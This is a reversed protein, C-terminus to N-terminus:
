NESIIDDKLYPLHLYDLRGAMVNTSVRFIKSLDSLSPVILDNYIKYLSEKPILLEGAFVNADYERPENKNDNNRLEVHRNKLTETHLCCHAIEHAITFRKRNVTDSEKYFIMLDDDKAYTIGLISGLDYNMLKEIQSFDASVERIGLNGLLMSMNIPPILSINNERLLETATKNKMNKLIKCMDDDEKTYYFCIIKRKM